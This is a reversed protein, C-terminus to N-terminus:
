PSFPVATSASLRPKVAAWLRDCVSITLTEIPMIAWALLVSVGVSVTGIIAFALPTDFGTKAALVALGCTLSVIVSYHTLYMLFSIRGLFQSLRNSLFSKAAGSLNVGVVVAIALLIMSQRNSPDTLALTGGAFIAAALLPLGLDFSFTRGLRAWGGEHRVHGILAGAFFCCVLANVVFLGLFALALATKTFRLKLTASLFAFLLFSGMMESKMTWLFTAFEGSSPRVYVTALAYSLWDGLSIAESPAPRLFRTNMVESAATVNNWGANVVMMTLATTALIPLTLRPYRKVASRQIALYSRSRWVSITLADGSLVFFIMVALAGNFLSATVINKLGPIADAFAMYFGHYVTVSLAAWGRLGDLEMAREVPPPQLESPAQGSVPLM